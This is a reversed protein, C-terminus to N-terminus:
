AFVAIMMFGWIVLQVLALAFATAYVPKTRFVLSTKKRFNRICIYMASTATFPAVVMIMFTFIYPIVALYMAIHDYRVKANVLKESQKEVVEKDLCGPCLHRGDADLDCLSCIFRGCAECATEAQKGPHYFCGAQEEDIKHSASPAKKERFLAPFVCVARQTGCNSCERTNDPSIERPGLPIGCNPCGPYPISHIRGNRTQM